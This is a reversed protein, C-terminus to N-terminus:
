FEKMESHLEGGWLSRMGVGCGSKEQRHIQCSKTGRTLPIMFYKDKPAQSGKRLLIDELNVQTALTATSYQGLDCKSAHTHWRQRNM